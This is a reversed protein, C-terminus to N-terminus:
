RQEVPGLAPKIDLVPTGDIAELHLVRLRAGDVAVLRVTHLGIPNPRDPSRTAFVGVAERELDGRPRTRLVARDGRDLWTIVIIEDGPRLGGAADLYAPDVVVVAGPAGEDPQRPAADLDTLSSEVRGIPWVDFTSSVQEVM